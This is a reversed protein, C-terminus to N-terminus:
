STLGSTPPPGPVNHIALLNAVPFDSKPLNIKPADVVKELSSDGRVVRITQTHHQAHRGGAAGSKGKEAGGIDETQPLEDGSFYIVDYKPQVPPVYPQLSALKAPLVIVAILLASELVWAVLMGPFPFIKIPAEGALPKPSKQLAPRISTIFEEWPSSWPILFQPVDQLSKLVPAAQVAM